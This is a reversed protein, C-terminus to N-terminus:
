IWRSTMARCSSRPGCRHHETAVIDDQHGAAGRTQARGGHRGHDGGSSSRDHQVQRTRTVVELRPLLDAQDAPIHAVLVIDYPRDAAAPSKPMSRAATLQAPTAVGPRTTPLRPTSGSSSKRRTISILRTPVKLTSRSAAAAM